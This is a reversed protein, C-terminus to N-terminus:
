RSCPYVFGFCQGHIKPFLTRMHAMFKKNVCLVSLKMITDGGPSANQTTLIINGASIIRECFSAALLAGVNARSHTAMFPFYGYIKRDPDDKKLKNFWKSLDLKATADLLKYGGEVPIQNEDIGFVEAWQSPIM